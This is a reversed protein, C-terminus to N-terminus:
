RGAVGRPGRGALMVHGVASSSVRILDLPPRDWPVEPSPPVDRGEAEAILVVGLAFLLDQFARNLLLEMTPEPVRGAAGPLRAMERWHEAYHLISIRHENRARRLQEDTARDLEAVATLRARLTDAIQDVGVAFPGWRGGGGGVVAEILPRLQEPDLRRNHTGDAIARELEAAAESTTAPGSIDRVVERANAVARRYSRLPGFLGTSSELARRVQRLPVWQDGWYVWVGVPIQVLGRVHRIETRKALLTRFLDWQNDPWQYLAGRRGDTRAVREAEDLLGLRVWEAVLRETADGFGAAQAAAVM